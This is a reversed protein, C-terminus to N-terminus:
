NVANVRFTFVMEKHASIREKSYGIFMSQEECWQMYLPLKAKAHVM